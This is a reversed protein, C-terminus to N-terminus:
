LIQKIAAIFYVQISSSHMASSQFGLLINLLGDDKHYSGCWLFNQNKQMRVVFPVSGGACIRLRILAKSIRNGPIYIVLYVMGLIERNQRTELASIISKVKVSRVRIVTIRRFFNMYKKHSAFNSKFRNPCLM